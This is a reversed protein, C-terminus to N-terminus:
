RRRPEGRRGTPIIRGAGVVERSTNGGGDRSSHLTWEDLFSSLPFLSLLVRPTRIGAEGPAPVEM